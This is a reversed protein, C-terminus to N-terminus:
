EKAAQGDNSDHVEVREKWLKVRVGCFRVVSLGRTLCVVSYLMADM